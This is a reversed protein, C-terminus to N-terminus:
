YHGWKPTPVPVQQESPVPPAPGDSPPRVHLPRVDDLDLDVRNVEIKGRAALRGPHNLSDLAEHAYYDPGHPWHWTSPRMWSWTKPGQYGGKYVQDRPNASTPEPDYDTYTTM